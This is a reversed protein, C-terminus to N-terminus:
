QLLEQNVLHTNRNGELSRFRVAIKSAGHARCEFKVSTKAGVTKRWDVEFCRRSERWSEDCVQEWADKLPTETGRNIVKWGKGPWRAADVGDLEPADCVARFFVVLSDAEESAELSKSMTTFGLQAAADEFTTPSTLLEDVVESVIANCADAYEQSFTRLNAIDGVGTQNMAPRWDVVDTLHVHVIRRGLQADRKVEIPLHVDTWVLVPLDGMRVPGIWIKWSRSDPTLNLVFDMAQVAGQKSREAEKMFENFLAFSGTDMSDRISQRVKDVNSTWVHEAASDGVIFAAAKVTNTKAASAPGSIFIMPPMSTTGEAYGKATIMLKVLQHNIGPCARDIYSWPDKIRKDPDVYRPRLREMSERALAPTQVVVPIRSQDRSRPYLSIGFVPSLQPYGHKSIDFTQQLVAVKDLAPKMKGKDDISCAAPLTKLVEKVDKSYTEGNLNTWRGEMRLIDQGANLVVQVLKDTAGQHHLKIMAGYACKAARGRVGFKDDILHQVHTWHCMNEICSHLLTASTGGILAQFPFWGPRSSGLTTGHAECVFCKIGLEQVVVPSTKATSTPAVPCRDHTYRQGVELGRAALWEKTAEDDLSYQRMWSKLVSFDETQQNSFMQGAPFRTDSKLEIMHYMVTSSLHLYATAAIEEATLPGHNQYVLHFGGSKTVWAMSPVPHFNLLLSELRKDTWGEADLDVVCLRSEDDWSAVPDEVGWPKSFATRLVELPVEGSEIVYDSQFIGRVKVAFRHDKGNASFETRGTREYEDVIDVVTQREVGLTRAAKVFHSEDNFAASARAALAGSEERLELTVRSGNKTVVFKQM